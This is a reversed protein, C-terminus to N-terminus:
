LKFNWSITPVVNGFIVLEYANVDGEDIDFFVSFPNDRGLLNYLSLSWYSKAFKKQRHGWKLTFGLDVRMYDRIRDSNRESFNIVDIGQIDYVGTPVTLPRGSTYVFNFSLVFRKTVDYNSVLNLVHPMDFNTPFYEGSNIRADQTPGDLKIFSRSYTYNFWGNLRGEKELSFEVGYARGDGQLIATELESNLLFSSGTKFDLLNQMLKGYVEVSADLGLSEFKKFYGVSIEDAIQPKIYTSSLRWIDTPSVSATNMLSHLYQRNRGYGLKVSSTEDLLYRGTLRVEPGAYTNIVEGDDYVVSDIRTNRSIPVGEEYVFETGPGLNQFLSFRLGANISLRETLKFEDSFYVASELGKERDLVNPSRDSNENFPRLTGPNIDYQKVEAGFNFLHRESFDLNLDVKASIESVDFDQIFAREPVQTSELEYKYDSKSISLKGDFGGNFKHQWFGTMIRNTNQFDSFTFLTDSAVRFNDRSAYLSFGTNNSENIQHHYKIIADSFDVQNDSFEPNDVINTVWDSYTTRGSVMLASSGNFLPVDVTLRTAISSIGGEVSLREKSPMKSSIDFVSSLRGGYKSPIGGKYIEMGGLADPNFVSFFGLFHSVNYVTAGDFLFLNQDSKGGRVYFGAGGEGSNNIGPLLTAVKLVDREGLVAPLEKFNEIDIKEVGLELSQVERYASAEVVVESLAIVDEFLTANLVDESFVMLQKTMTTMGVYQFTLEQRGNIVEISYRGQEDTLATVSGGATYVLVGVLTTGDEGSVVTGTIKSKKNKVFKSLSGLEIIRDSSDIRVEAPEEFTRRFIVDTVVETTDPLAQVEVARNQSLMPLDTTLIRNRTIFVNSGRFSAFLEVKSTVQRMADEADEANVSGSFVLDGIDSQDFYMKLDFHQEVDAFVKVLSAENYNANFTGINQAFGLQSFLMLIIAIRKSM